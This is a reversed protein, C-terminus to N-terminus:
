HLAAHSHLRPAQDYLTDFDLVQGQTAQAHATAAAQDAFAALGSGMPTSAADGQVYTAQRADLWERSQYDHVYYAVIASSAEIEQAYALMDGIDDFIRHEYHQPKTEVVVGAAFREDSIIMGCHDCMDEGYHIAPPVDPTVKSGSCAVLLLMLVLVLSRTYLNM